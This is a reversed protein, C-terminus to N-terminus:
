MRPLYVVSVIEHQDVDDRNVIHAVPEHQGYYWQKNYNLAIDTVEVRQLEDVGSEYGDVVVMADADLTQLKEILERVTM